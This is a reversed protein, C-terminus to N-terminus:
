RSVKRGVRGAAARDRTGAEIMREYLAIVPAAAPLPAHHRAFTGYAADGATRRAQPDDLLAATATALLDDDSTVTVGGHDLLGEAGDPTTVVPVGLALAELVKVKTGSGKTVPYLLVGLEALFATASAVGGCWQVGPLEPLHPFASHEMGRGALILRADPRAEIVRPWVSTLLREVANATPPWAASGILGAVPQELSARPLYHTPDLALPAVSLEAHPALAALEEAVESSNALLWRAYRLARREVRLLALAERGQSDWPIGVSRDRRTLCHIQTVAPREVLKTAAGAVAEVFHVVDADRARERLRDAFPGRTLLTHPRVLREAHAHLGGPIDIRVVEVPLDEPPSSDPRARGDPSIALCDVGSARLGRMLGIACRAAAGGELSIPFPLVILVRVPALTHRLHQSPQSRQSVQEEM